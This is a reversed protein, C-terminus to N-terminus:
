SIEIEEETHLNKKETPRFVFWKESMHKPSIYSSESM